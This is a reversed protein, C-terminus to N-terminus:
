KNGEVLDVILQQLVAIIKAREEIAGLAHYINTLEDITELQQNM